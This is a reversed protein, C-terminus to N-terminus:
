YGYLDHQLKTRFEAKTMVHPTKREKDRARAYEYRQVDGMANEISIGVSRKKAHRIEIIRM